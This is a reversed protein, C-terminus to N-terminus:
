CAGSIRRMPINFCAIGARIYRRSVQHQKSRQTQLQTLQTRAAEAACVKKSLEAEVLEVKSQTKVVNLELATIEARHTTRLEIVSQLRVGWRRVRQSQEEQLAIMKPLDLLLTQVSAVDEVIGAVVSDYRDLSATVLDSQNAIFAASGPNSAQGCVDRQIADVGNCMAQLDATYKKLAGLECTFKDHLGGRELAGALSLRCCLCAAAKANAFPEVFTM